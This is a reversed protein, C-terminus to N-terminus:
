HCNLLQDSLGSTFQRVPHTMPQEWVASLQQSAKQRVKFEALCRYAILNAFRNNILGIRDDRIISYNNVCASVRRFYNNLERPLTSKRGAQGIIISARHRSPM